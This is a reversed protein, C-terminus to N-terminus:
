LDFSLSLSLSTPSPLTSIVYTFADRSNSRFIFHLSEISKRGKIGLSSLRGDLHMLLLLVSFMYLVSKPFYDKKSTIYKLLDDDGIIQSLIVQIGMGGDVKRAVCDVRQLPPTCFACLFPACPILPSAHFSPTLTTMKGIM